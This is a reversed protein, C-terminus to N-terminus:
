SRSSGRWRAIARWPASDRSGRAAYSSVPRTPLSTRSSDCRRSPTLRLSRGRRMCTTGCLLPARAPLGRATMRTTGRRHRAPRAHRDRYMRLSGCRRVADVASHVPSTHSSGNLGARSRAPPADLNRRTGRVEYRLELASRMRRSSGDAVLPDRGRSAPRTRSSGDHAHDPRPPSAARTHTTDDRRSGGRAERSCPGRPSRSSDDNARAPEVRHDHSTCLMDGPAAGGHVRRSVNRHSGGRRPHCTVVAASGARLTSWVRDM